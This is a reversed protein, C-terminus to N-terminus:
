SETPTPLTIEIARVLEHLNYSACRDFDFFQILRSFRNYQTAADDIQFTTKKYWTKLMETRMNAEAFADKFVHAHSEAEIMEFFERPFYPEESPRPPVKLYSSSVRIKSNPFLYGYVVERMELPLKQYMQRCFAQCRPGFITTDLHEDIRASLGSRITALRQRKIDWEKKKAKPTRSDNPEHVATMYSIALRQLLVGVYNMNRLMDHLYAEDLVKTNPPPPILAGISEVEHPPM